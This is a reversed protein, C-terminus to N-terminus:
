YGRTRILNKFEDNAERNIQVLMIEENKDFGIDTNKMFSLQQVVILTSVIM